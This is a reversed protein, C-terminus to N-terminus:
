GATSPILVESNPSYYLGHSLSVLIDYDTMGFMSFLGVLTWLRPASDILIQDGSIARFLRITNAAQRIPCYDQIDRHKALPTDQYLCDEMTLSTDPSSEDKSQPHGYCMCVDDHGGVCTAPIAAIETTRFWLKIGNTITLQQLALAHEEEDVCPSLDLVHTVGPPPDGFRRRMRAQYTPSELNQKLIPSGTKIIQDYTLRLEANNFHTDLCSRVSSYEPYNVVILVNGDTMSHVNNQTKFLEMNHIQIPDIATKGMSTSDLIRRRQLAAEMAQLMPPM